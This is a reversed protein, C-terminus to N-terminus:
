ARRARSAPLGRAAIALRTGWPLAEAVTVEQGTEAQLVDVARVADAGPPLWVSVEVAM